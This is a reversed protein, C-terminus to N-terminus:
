VCVGEGSRCSMAERHCRRSRLCRRGGCPSHPHTVFGHAVYSVAPCGHGGSSIACLAEIASTRVDDDPFELRLALGELSEQHDPPVLIKMAVVAKGRVEPSCDQISRVIARMVAEHGRPAVQAFYM